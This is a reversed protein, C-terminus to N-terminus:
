NIPSQSNLTFVYTCDWGGLLGVQCLWALNFLPRCALWPAMMMPVRCQTIRPMWHILILVTIASTLNICTINSSPNINSPRVMCAREIANYWATTERSIDGQVYLARCSYYCLSMDTDFIYHFYIFKFFYFLCAFRLSKFAAVPRYDPFAWNPDFDGINQVTNGQFKISSRPFCFPMEGKSNWAEHLM